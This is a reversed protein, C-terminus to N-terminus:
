FGKANFFNKQILHTFMRIYVLEGGVIDYMNLEDAQM